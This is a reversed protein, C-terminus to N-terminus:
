ASVAKRVAVVADDKAAEHAKAREPYDPTGVANIRADWTAWVARQLAYPVSNWHRPCLFDSRTAQWVCGPYECDKVSM